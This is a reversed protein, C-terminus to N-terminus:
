FITKILGLLDSTFDKDNGSRANSIDEKIKNIMSLKLEQSITEGYGQKRLNDGIVRLNSMLINQYALQQTKELSIFKNSTFLKEIEGDLKKKTAELIPLQAVKNQTEAVIQKIEEKNNEYYIKKYSPATYKKLHEKTEELEKLLKENMEKLLQNEKIIDEYDM